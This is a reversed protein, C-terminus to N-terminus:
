ISTYNIGYNLAMNSMLHHILGYEKLTLEFGDYFSYTLGMILISYVSILLFILILMGCIGKSFKSLETTNSIM